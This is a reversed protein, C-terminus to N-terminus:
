RPGGRTTAAGRLGGRGGAPPPLAAGGGAGGTGRRRRRELNFGTTASVACPRASLCRMGGRKVAGGPAPSAASLPRAGRLGGREADGGSEGRQGGARMSVGCGRRRNPVHPPQPTPASPIAGGSNVPPVIAAGGCGGGPGCTPVHCSRPTPHTSVRTPPATSLEGKGVSRLPPVWGPSPSGEGWRHCPPPAWAGRSRGPVSPPPAPAAATACSPSCTHARM